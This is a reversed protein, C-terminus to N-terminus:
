LVGGCDCWRGGSYVFLTNDKLKTLIGGVYSITRDKLKLTFPKGEKMLEIAEKSSKVKAIRINM